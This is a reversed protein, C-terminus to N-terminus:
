THCVFPDLIQLLLFSRGDSLPGLRAVKMQKYPFPRRRQLFWRHRRAQSARWRASKVGQDKKQQLSTQKRPFGHLHNLPKGRCATTFTRGPPPPPPPPYTLLKFSPLCIFTFTLSFSKFDVKRPTRVLYLSQRGVVNQPTTSNFDTSAAASGSALGALKHATGQQYRPNGAAAAAAASGHGDGDDEKDAEWKLKENKFRQRDALALAEYPKRHALTLRHWEAAVLVAVDKFSKESTQM